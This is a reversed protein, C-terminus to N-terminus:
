LKPVIGWGMGGAPKLATIIRVELLGYGRIRRGLGEKGLDERAGTRLRLQKVSAM